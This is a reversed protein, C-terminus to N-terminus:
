ESGVEGRRGQPERWSQLRLGSEQRCDRLGPHRGALSGLSRCSSRCDRRPTSHLGHTRCSRYSLCQLHDIVTPLSSEVELLSRVISFLHLALVAFPGIALIALSTSSLTSRPIIPRVCLTDSARALMPQQRLSLEVYRPTALITSPPTFSTAFTYMREITDSALGVFIVITKETSCSAKRVRLAASLMM